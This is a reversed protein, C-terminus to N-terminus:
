EATIWLWVWFAHLYVSPDESLIPINILSLDCCKYVVSFFLPKMLQLLFSELLIDEKGFIVNGSDHKKVHLGSDRM